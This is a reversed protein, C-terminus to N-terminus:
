ITDANFLRKYIRRFNDDTASIEGARERYDHGYMVELLSGIYRRERDKDIAAGILRNVTSAYGQPDSAHLYRAASVVFQGTHDVAIMNDALQGMEDSDLQGIHNAIYEYTLLGDPDDALRKITESDIM